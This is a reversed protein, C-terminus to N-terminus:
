RSGCRANEIEKEDGEKQTTRTSASIVRFIYPRSKRGEVTKGCLFPWNVLFHPIYKASLLTSLVCINLGTFTILQLLEKLGEEVTLVCVISHETRETKLWNLLIFIYICDCTRCVFQLSVPKIRIICIRHLNLPLIQLLVTFQYSSWRYKGAINKYKMFKSFSLM